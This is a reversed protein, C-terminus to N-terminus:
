KNIEERNQEPNFSYKPVNHAFGSVAPLSRSVHGLTQSLNKRNSTFQLLGKTGTVLDGFVSYHRKVKSISGLLQIGSILDAVLSGVVHYCKRALHAFKRLM